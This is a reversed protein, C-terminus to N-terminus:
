FRHSFVKIIIAGTKVSRKGCYCITHLPIKFSFIIKEKKMLTLDYPFILLVYIITRLEETHINRDKYIINPCDLETNRISGNTHVFFFAWLLSFFVKDKSRIFKLNLKYVTPICFFFYNFAVISILSIAYYSNYCLIFYFIM